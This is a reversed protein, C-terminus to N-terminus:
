KKEWDTNKVLETLYAVLEDQNKLLKKYTYDWAYYYSIAFQQDPTKHIRIRLRKPSYRANYWLFVIGIILVAILVSVVEILNNTPIETIGSM